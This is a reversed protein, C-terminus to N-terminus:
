EWTGEPEGREHFDNPYQHIPNLQKDPWTFMFEGHGIVARNAVYLSNGAREWKHWFNIDDDLRGEGWEGDANPIGHFWPHPVKRLASTRLLTLGFHATAVKMLPEQLRWAEVNPTPVGSDDKIVMLPKASERGRAMQIAAVADIEPHTAALRVLTAVTDASYISDYDTTLIWDAGENALQELARELCQGWYAGQFITPRIGLPLLAKSWCFFNDQFGLRPVSMACRIDLKPLEGMKTGELNLSCEYSACDPVPSTWYQIDVLGCQSLLGRLSENDFLTKHFDNEDEQGGMVYALTAIQKGALYNEAIWKFDPVALKLKGGPKLVRIWERVVDAVQRFEFHELVHSARVEDVSEDAYDTLPYIEQGTKRDLNEYGELPCTTGAGLNLKM